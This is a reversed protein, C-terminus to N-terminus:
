ESLNHLFFDYDNITKNLMRARSTLFETMFQIDRLVNKHNCYSFEILKNQIIMLLNQTEGACDFIKILYTMCINMNDYQNKGLFPPIFYDNQNPTTKNPPCQSDPVYNKFDFFFKPKFNYNYNCNYTLEIGKQNMFNYNSNNSNEKGFIDMFNKKENGEKGDGLIQNFINDQNYMNKMDVGQNPYDGFFPTDYYSNGPTKGGLNNDNLQKNLFANPDKTLNSASNNSSTMFQNKENEKEKEILLHLGKIIELKKKPELSAQEDNDKLSEYISYVGNQERFLNAICNTCFRKPGKLKNENKSITKKFLDKLQQVNKKQLMIRNYLEENLKNNPENKKQENEIQSFFTFLFNLYDEYTKYKIIEVGPPCKFKSCLICPKNSKKRPRGVRFAHTIIASNLIIINLLTNQSYNPFNNDYQSNSAQAQPKINISDNKSHIPPVVKSITIGENKISNPLNKKQKFKKKFRRRKKSLLTIFDDGPKNPLKSICDGCICVNLCKFCKFRNNKKMKEFIKTYHHPYKEKFCFLCFFCGCGKNTCQIVMSDGFSKACKHCKVNGEM